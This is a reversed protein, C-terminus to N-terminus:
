EGKLTNRIEEYLPFINLLIAPHGSNNDRLYELFTIDVSESPRFQIEYGTWLLSIWVVAHVKYNHQELYTQIARGEGITSLLERWKSILHQPIYFDLKKPQLSAVGV